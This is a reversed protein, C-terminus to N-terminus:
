QATQAQIELQKRLRPKIAGPLLAPLLALGEKATARSKDIQGTARYAQALTLLISPTKRHTLATAREACSLAFQPDRLSTPEVKLIDNAAQELTTPSAQNKSVLIKMTNIGAKALDRSTGAGHLTAQITALRMQADAQVAKWAENSPALKTARDMIAIVQLLLKEAAALNQRRDGGIPALAPDAAAEEIAAEDNLDTELDALARLDLKDAAVSSEDMQILEEHLKVAKSYEGLQALANAERQILISHARLYYLSNKEEMPSAEERQMANQYVKLAQAPDSELEIEGVKMLAVVLLRGGSLSKPDLSVARTALDLSRRYAALAAPLDNLSAPGAQGLEDGLTNYSDAANLLQSASAHPRSAVADYTGVVQRITSVAEIPRGNQWLITSRLDRAVALERMAVLDKPDALALPESLAIAKDVSALAGIFDGLNQYYANGQINGLRTYADALDLQTVRDGQADKATRDLHEIVRTVLLKQVGTTGPLQQIAEDLESLLSNSLQRLDAASAQAKRREQNAVNAQWVVGIVGAILSAALLV